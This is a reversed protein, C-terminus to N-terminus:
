HVPQTLAPVWFSIAFRDQVWASSAVLPAGVLLSLLAMMMM